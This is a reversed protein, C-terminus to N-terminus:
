GLRLLEGPPLLVKLGFTFILWMGGVAALAIIGHLLVRRPRRPGLLTLSAFVFLVGGILMGLYPLTLLFVGFLTFCVLVNRYHSLWGRLGSEAPADELAPPPTGSALSRVLYVLTFLTLVVLVARPWVASGLTEFGLDRIRTTAWFFTGCAVLLVLATVTDRNPGSM